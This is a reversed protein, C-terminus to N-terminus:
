VKAEPQVTRTEGKRKKARKPQVVGKLLPHGTLDEALADLYAKVEPPVPHRYGYREEAQTLLDLYVAVEEGVRKERDSIVTKYDSLTFLAVPKYVPTPEAGDEGFLPLSHYVRRGDSDKAHRVWAKIKSTIGERMLQSKVEDDWFGREVSAEQLQAVSAGQAFLDAMQEFFKSRLTESDQKSSLNM